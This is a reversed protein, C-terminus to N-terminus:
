ECSFVNQSYFTSIFVSSNPHSFSIGCEKNKRFVGGWNHNGNLNKKFFLYGSVFFFANVYFPHVLNGMLVKGGSYVESHCLYVSLMCVAKVIDIWLRRSFKNNNIKETM